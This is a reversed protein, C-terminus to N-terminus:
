SIQQTMSNVVKKSSDKSAFNLIALEAAVSTPSPENVESSNDELITDAIKLMQTKDDSSEGLIMNPGLADLIEIKKLDKEFEEKLKTLSAKM